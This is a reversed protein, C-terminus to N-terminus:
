TRETGDTATVVLTLGEMSRIMVAQGPSLAAEGESRAQWREGHVFVHGQKGDWDMVSGTLGIMEEAGTAVKRQHVRAALRGVLLSFTLSAVAVAGLAPWSMELGPVDSDFLLVGGLVIAVTGGIGLIGFSPSFIEAIVLALGLGILALGAWNFPLISLAVMGSLLSIGGITGPFLAGPNYLEFLIGYFGIVMLFLAVNPNTIISLFQTRWDPNMPVPALGETDLVLAEGDMDVIMGHAAALVDETSRAVFDIVGDQAAANATLTAAERVAREAWEANRGRLEALSQIWAVADNIAKAEAASGAAAPNRREGQGEEGDDAPSERDRPAEDGDFPSGGMAVPTAAGITTAPAMAAVHAAYAIYTGASAARGGSPAVHVAVPVPSALIANVIERTSSVLGGPTDMRLVVM